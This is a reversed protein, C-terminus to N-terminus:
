WCGWNEVYISSTSSGSANSATIDGQWFICWDTITLIGTAPDLSLGAPPPGNESIINESLMWSTAPGALNFLNMDFSAPAETYSIDVWDLEPPPIDATVTYNVTISDTDGEADIAQVVVSYSGTVTAVGSIEAGTPNVPNLSLGAPLAGSIIAYSVATEYTTPQFQVRRIPYNLYGVVDLVGATDAPRTSINVPGAIPAVLDVIVLSGPAATICSENTTGNSGNDFSIEAWFCVEGNSPIYLPATPTAVASVTEVTNPRWGIDAFTRAKILATGTDPGFVTVIAQAANMSVDCNWWSFHSVTAQMALGSPSDTSAVVTGMGEQQWIGTDENLSWLPILDGTMIPSGDQYTSMYIPITVDATQGAALQLPQGNQSFEFEVTGLSIIPTDTLAGELVGSFEGPFAALTAPRSVDVPTITLDINGNVAIGNGDVFSGATVSVGAGDSGTLTVNTGASFSQVASRPIMVIDLFVNGNSKPSRAPAVQDAYGASTFQLVVDSNALLEVSFQGNATSITAASSVGGSLVNIAVNPLVSGDVTTVRGSINSVPMQVTVSVSDSALLEGDDDSVSVTFVLVESISGLDPANFLPTLTNSNLLEVVTGSTQSWSIIIDDDDKHHRSFREHMDHHKTKKFGHHNVDKHKSHKKRNKKNKHQHHKDEKSISLTASLQVSDGVMVSQDEGANVSVENESASAVSMSLTFLFAFLFQILRIPKINIDM